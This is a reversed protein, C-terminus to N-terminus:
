LVSVLLGDPPRSHPAVLPEPLNMRWCRAPRLRLAHRRGPHPAPPRPLSPRPKTTGCDRAQKIHTMIRRSLHALALICIRFLVFNSMQLDLSSPCVLHRRRQPSMDGETAPASSSSSTLHPMFRHPEVKWRPAPSNFIADLPHARAPRRRLGQPPTPPPSMSGAHRKPPRPHIAQHRTPRGSPECGPCLWLVLLDMCWGKDHRNSAERGKGPSHSRSFQQTSM